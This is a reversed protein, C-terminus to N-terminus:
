ERFRWYAVGLQQEARHEIDIARYKIGMTKARVAWERGGNAYAVLMMSIANRM